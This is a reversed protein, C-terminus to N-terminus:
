DLVVETFDHAIRHDGRVVDEGRVLQMTAMGAAKAADLEEAVDSLFLIETPPRGIAAAINAYSATERKHGIQTDFYGSFLPRLDGADSYGFLLKQAGVSGSSYVYLDLGDDSWARLGAVADDYMHGTFGGTEYGHKWILGQLSKLSTAKRDEAIWLLLIEIVRAVDAAPEAAEARAAELLAAVEPDEHNQRLFDPLHESAYPFLVKHVFEISSTTGEIDTLIATITM